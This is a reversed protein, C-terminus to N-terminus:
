DALDGAPETARLSPHWWQEIARSLESLGVPKSLYADMGADYCRQADGTVANATLAIIASRPRGAAEMRRISRAMEFGDMVPMSCDTIVVDYGNREMLQLGEQGNEALDCDAGLRRLQRKLVLQNM